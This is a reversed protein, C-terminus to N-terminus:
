WPNLEMGFCSHVVTKFCRFASIWPQANFAGNSQVLFDLKDINQLLKHCSPGNFSEGGHYAAPRIQLNKPWEHVSPWVKSLTSFLHNVIGLLLHLEPPAIVDIVKTDDSEPLLPDNTCNLFAQASKSKSLKFQQANSRISGFTRFEGCFLLHDCDVECFCCPHKSSHSQIGCIINASKLDSTFVFRIKQIALHGLLNSINTYNETIDQVIGVVFIRNVGSSLRRTGFLQMSNKQTDQNEESIDLLSLSIKFFGGGNDLSLKVLTDPASYNRASIITWVFAEIDNCVVKHRDILKGKSEFVSRTCDFLDELKRGAQAFNHRFNKEVGGGKPSFRNLFAALNRMRGNSLSTAQQIQVMEETSLRNANEDSKSSGPVLPFKPGALQSLRITGKPSSNKGKIISTALQEGAKPFKQAIVMLNKSRTQQNCKHSNGRGIATLCKTCQKQITPFIKHQIKEEADKSPRGQKQKKPSRKRATKCLLCNCSLPASRLFKPLTITEFNFLKPLHCAMMEQENKKLLALRCTSCIGSPFRLDEFNIERKLHACLRQKVTQTLQDKCKKLCLICLCKRSQAHNRAFTPM